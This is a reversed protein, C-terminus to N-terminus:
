LAQQAFEKVIKVSENMKEREEEDMPVMLTQNIGDWGIRCPLSVAVGAWDGFQEGLVHAVPIIASDDKMITEVINSVAMAIGYFTAGKLQIVEAGGNRTREAIEEKNLEVGIQRAFEDMPFGGVNASSFVPVQSDGHEGIIYANIDEINVQLKKSLLYRFRATDLSTGSGIVREAPLGSVKQAAMTTIDAPNSVVLLMPNKAYKMINRTIDEVISVNTKALDLRTQCPKRAIGATIIVLKADACEEYGGHRVWVQKFFSTGHGIDLAAGHARDDNVDILVIDNAQVRVMLTYAIAEGVNGAGVVVIKDRHTKKM